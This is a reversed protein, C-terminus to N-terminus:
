INPEEEAECEGCREGETPASPLPPVGTELPKGCLTTFIWPNTSEVYGVAHASKHWVSKDDQVWSIEFGPAM